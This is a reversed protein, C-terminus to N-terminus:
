YIFAGENGALHM